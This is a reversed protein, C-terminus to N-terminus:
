PKFRWHTEVYWWALTMVFGAGLFVGALFAVADM